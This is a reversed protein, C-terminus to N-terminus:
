KNNWIIGNSTEEINFGQEKVLKVFRMIRQTPKKGRMYTYNVFDILQHAEYTSLRDNGDIMMEYRHTAEEIDQMYFTAAYLHFIKIGANSAEIVFRSLTERSENSLNSGDNYSKFIQIFADEQNDSSIILQIDKKIQFMKICDNYIKLKLDTIEKSYKKIFQSRDEDLITTEYFDVTHLFNQLDRLSILARLYLEEEPENESSHNMANRDDKIYNLANKTEKALTAIKPCFRITNVIFPVDMDDISYNEIGKKRIIKYQEIYNDRHSGTIANKIFNYLIQRWDDVVIMKFFSQCVHCRLGVIDSM